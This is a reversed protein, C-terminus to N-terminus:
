SKKRWVFIFKRDIIISLILSIIIPIISAAGIFFPLPVLTYGASHGFLVFLICYLFVIVFIITPIYKYTRENKFIKGLAIPSIIPIVIYLVVFIIFVMSSINM